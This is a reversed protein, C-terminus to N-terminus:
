TLFFFFLEQTLTELSPMHRGNQFGGSCSQKEIVSNPLSNWDRIKCAIFGHQYQNRLQNRLKVQIFKKPHFQRTGQRRKFLM